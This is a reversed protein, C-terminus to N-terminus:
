EGDSAWVRDMLRSVAPAALTSGAAATVGITWGVPGLPRSGFFQSLGPTQVVAALAAASALSSGVVLPNRWGAALTQGLQSGVLSVLAVTNARGRTLGTLRGAQWGLAGAAATVVGRTLIDRALAPGLSADPGERALAAPEARDPPRVALALAPVLDTFLNVLLLQRANLPSGGPLLLESGVTFVIEGLNGGVLVAVADRVSAWMARGEVIADIITEIRDDTVVVDAAEKAADTARDGLAVGVDAARIAAADNAGDGTMAVVRGAAQLAQVIRVKHAPSVRAFVAVSRVQELLQEDALADVESGTLVGNGDLLGLEAAISEATSPHDGTVMVVQVGAARLSGVAEAASVRVPDSMAVLGVLELGAVREDDLDATGTAPGEAVALVRYGRRALEDIRSNLRTRGRADLRTAGGARRWTRCRPLIVEPAGKVALRRGARVRGVVAHYGRSPEFPVEVDVRWGAADLGQTVAAVRAGEIVARDTPHSVHAGDEGSPTARLAAALISRAPGDLEGLPLESVGDSVCTLQIQGTTLTGTKDACLVDVRGLAEITSAHRVLAKRGSLRRAAALQAVTAVLPLGEPVAAVALGVGTTLTQGLQRGHLLGGALLAAGAGLSLPVTQATLRRLRAEVGSRRPQDTGIRASRGVQTDNGTAVVVATVEGAAVATGAYLMSRRDAVSRAASPESTKTVLQSEGTLSAEDVEVGRATLVRCDAPVADGARLVVVDGLVLGESPTMLEVGGRRVRVRGAAVAMLRRLAQDAGVHQIGGILANFGMVSGILAADVISGLAASLAAGSALAPTLPNALSDLTARLVGAREAEAGEQQAAADRGAVEDGTLGQPRSELSALVDEVSMAHWDSVDDGVPEPRKGLGRAAWAGAALSFGAAANVGLAARSSAGRRRGSLALLSAAGSGYAACAISRRSVTRAVPIAELVLWADLLGRSSLLHAGWPPRDPERLVGIGVDAAALAARQRATVVAVVHGAAQLERVEGALRSGGRVLQDVGLRVTVSSAHLGAVAVNGAERAAVVLAPALPDVQPLVEVLAALGHPDHLGLVLARGRRLAREAVWAESGRPVDGSALPALRWRGSTRAEGPAETDFLMRSALWLEDEQGAREPPTWVSGLTARGTLLVEADLVVTDVRDLRRLAAPDMSLVGRAALLRGLSTAFGERGLRAPKPNSAVTAAVALRPDRTAALAGLAGAVGAAASRRSYREVPGEPAAGRREPLALPACGLDARRHLEAEREEWVRRRGALEAAALARYMGDVALSLPSGALSQALAHVGALGVDAAPGLRDELPRRVAPTAEALSVLAATETSVANARLARTVLGLGFGATDAALAWMQRQGPEDDGPHEPRDHPFLTRSLGHRQELAEIVGVLDQLDVQDPVFAVVVRGTVQNVAAWDVGDLRDM